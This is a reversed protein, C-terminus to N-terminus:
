LDASVVGVGEEEAGVLTAEIKKQGICTPVEVNPVSQLDCPVM